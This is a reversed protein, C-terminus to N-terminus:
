FPNRLGNVALKKSMKQVLVQVMPRAQNQFLQFNPQPASSRQCSACLEIPSGVIDRIPLVAYM